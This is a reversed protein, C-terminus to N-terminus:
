VDARRAREGDAELDEQGSGLVPKVPMRRANGAGSTAMQALLDGQRTSQDILTM